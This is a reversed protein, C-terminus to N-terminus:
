KNDIGGEKCPLFGKAGTGIYRYVKEKPIGKQSLAICDDPLTNTIYRDEYKGKKIVWM